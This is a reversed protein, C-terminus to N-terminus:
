FDNERINDGDFSGSFHSELCTQSPSRRSADFRPSKAGVPPTPKGHLVVVAGREFCLLAKCSNPRNEKVAAM